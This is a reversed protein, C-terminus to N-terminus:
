ADRDGANTETDASCDNRLVREGFDGEPDRKVLVIQGEQERLEWRDKDFSLVPASDVDITRQSDMHSLLALFKRCYGDESLNTLDRYEDVVPNNIRRPTEVVTTGIATEVTDKNREIGDGIM